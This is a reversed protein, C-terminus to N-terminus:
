CECKEEDLEMHEPCEKNCIEEVVVCECKEFDPRQGYPCM